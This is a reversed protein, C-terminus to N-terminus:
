SALSTTVSRHAARGPDRERLREPVSACQDHDHHGRRSRHRWARHQQGPGTDADVDRARVLGFLLWRSGNWAAPRQTRSAGDRREPDGSDRQDSGPQRDGHEHRHLQYDSHRLMTGTEGNPAVSWTVSAATGVAAQGTGSATTGATFYAFASGGGALALAAIAGILAVRRRSSFIRM